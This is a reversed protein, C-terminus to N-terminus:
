QPLRTRFVIMRCESKRSVDMRGSEFDACSHSVTVPPPISQEPM